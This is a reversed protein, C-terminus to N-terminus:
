RRRDIITRRDKGSRREPGNYGTEISGRRDSLVRRPGGDHHRRRENFTM